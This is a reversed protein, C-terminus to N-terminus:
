IAVRGNEQLQLEHWGGDHPIGKMTRVRLLNQLAGEKEESRIDIIGKALDELSRYLYESHVGRTLGFLNVTHFKKKWPIDRDRIYQVFPKEDNFQLVVSYNDDLHLVPQRQKKEDKLDRSLDLSMETLKLFSITRKEKSTRGVSPAYWDIFELASNQELRSVEIGLEELEHRLEDPDRTFTHYDVINGQTLAGAVITSALPYWLSDADFEVLM